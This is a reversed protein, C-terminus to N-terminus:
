ARRILSDYGKGGNAAITPAAVQDEWRRGHLWSAPHPIYQGNKETWAPLRKQTEVAALMAAQLASSPALKIWAREAAPRNLKRPYVAYWAEFGALVETKTKGAGNNTGKTSAETLAYAAEATGSGQDKTGPGQDLPSAEDLTRQLNTSDEAFAQKGEPPTPLKSASPRDIKQNETWTPIAYYSCGAVQYFVALGAGRLEDMAAKMAPLQVDGAYPHLRALLFSPEGRGRGQDDALSILGIFDLRALLSLRGLKESEWIEPKLTRIRPM